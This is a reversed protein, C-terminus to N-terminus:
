FFNLYFSIISSTGKHTWATGIANHQFRMYEVKKEGGDFDKPLSYEVKVIVKSSSSWSLPPKSTKLSYVKINDTNATELLSKVNDYNGSDQMEKIKNMNYDALKYSLQEIVAKRLSDDKNESPSIVQMIFFALVAILVVVGAGGPINIKTEAM